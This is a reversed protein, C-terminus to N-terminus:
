RNEGEKVLISFVDTDGCVAVKHKDDSMSVMRLVVERAEQAAIKKIDDLTHTGHFSGVQVQLTVNVKTVCKFTPTTM